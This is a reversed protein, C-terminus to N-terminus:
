VIPAADPSLAASARVYLPTRFARCASAVPTLRSPGAGRCRRHPDRGARRRGLPRHLPDGAVHLPSGVAAALAQGLPSAPPASPSAASSRATAPGCGSASMGAPASRAPKSAPPPARLRLGARAARRRVARGARSRAVLDPRAGGATLAADIRSPTSRAACRRRRRRPARRRLGDFRTSTRRPLPRRRGGHRPRRGELALGAEVAARVARGLDVGPVSRGSGTATGDPTSRSPSPRAAPLAGEPAGRRPRRHGPAVRGLRRRARRADPARTRADRAGAGAGGGRGGARDGPARPQAPRARGRAAGGRGSGPRAAAARRAGCRRHPRRCQHAPRPSLRSALMRPADDLGAADLLAALGPRRRGRMVALGQRVFARNLGVLPVVDAVTALAVLDLGALLDPEAGRRRLLRARAPRPQARGADPLRRRGRLSPRPRLPRGAPEPQRHRRRRPLARPAQHHDLVVVDLGLRARRPSRSTARRAAISRSSSRARGAGRPRPDGRRQPRLGRHHPRPHPDLHPVGCARLFEGLLAASCAGDVDYDGFIAVTERRMSRTPSARPPRAGHRDPRYPDPMLDRLRPELFGAGGARRRRARRARAGPRRARRADARHRPRDHAQAADCRELWARGLASRTVGLFPRPPLPRPRNSVRASYRPDALHARGYGCCRGRRGRVLAQRRCARRRRRGEGCAPLPM